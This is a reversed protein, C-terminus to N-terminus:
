QGGARAAHEALKAFEDRAKKQAPGDYGRNVSHNLFKVVWDIRTPLSAGKARHCDRSLMWCGEFSEMERKSAGGHFHDMEGRDLPSFWRGCCCECADKARTEVRARVDSTKAHRVRKKSERRKAAPAASKKARLAFDLASLANNVGVEVEPCAEAYDSLLHRIERALKKHFVPSM